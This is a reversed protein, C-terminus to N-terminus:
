LLGRTSPDEMSPLDLTRWRETHTLLELGTAEQPIRQGSTLLAIVPAQLDAPLWSALVAARQQDVQEYGPQPKGHVLLTRYLEVAPRITPLGESTATEAAAAPIRLGPADLDGYYLIQSVEPLDAVSVVAAEFAKGAGWAVWGIRGPRDALLRTLTDFTDSNEVVLMAPGTGLRRAPLPPRTRRASLLDLSLRGPEFLSTGLLRELQKEDGFIELSRERLPVFATPRADRLWVNVKRLTEAQGSTLRVSAAWALEPRWAVSRAGGGNPAGPGDLASLRVRRPLPPAQSRDMSRPSPLALLSHAELEALLAALEARRTPSTASVPDVRDFLRWLDTLPVSRRRLAALEAVLRAARPTLPQGLGPSAPDSM